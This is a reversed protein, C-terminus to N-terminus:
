SLLLDETDYRRFEDASEPASNPPGMPERRDRTLLRGTLVIASLGVLTLLPVFGTAKVARREPTVDTHKM